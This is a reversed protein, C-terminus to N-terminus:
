SLTSDEEIVKLNFGNILFISMILLIGFSIIIILRHTLDPIFISVLILVMYLLYSMWYWRAQKIEVVDGDKVEIENSKVGLQSVRLKASKKPFDVKIQNNHSVKGVKEGNLKVTIRTGMGTWGTDRKIIISM